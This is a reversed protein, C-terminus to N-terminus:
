LTEMRALAYNLFAADQQLGCLRDFHRKTYPLLAKLVDTFGPVRDLRKLSYTRLVLNLVLQAVQLRLGVNEAQECGVWSVAYTRTNTNWQSTFALLKVLQEEDLDTLLRRVLLEDTNLVSM